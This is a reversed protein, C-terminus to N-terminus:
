VWFYDDAADSTYLLCPSIRAPLKEARLVGIRYIAQKALFPQVGFVHGPQLYGNVRSADTVVNATAAMAQLLIIPQTIEIESVLVQLLCAPCLDM